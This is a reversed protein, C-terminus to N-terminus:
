FGLPRQTSQTPTLPNRKRSRKPSEARLGESGDVRTSDAEAGVVEGEGPKRSRGSGVLANRMGGASYSGNQSSSGNGGHLTGGM